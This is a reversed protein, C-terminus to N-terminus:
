HKPTPHTYSSAHLLDTIVAFIMLVATIKKNCCFSISLQRYISRWTYYSYLSDPSTYIYVYMHVSTDLGQVTCICPVGM